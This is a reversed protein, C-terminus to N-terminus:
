PLYRSHKIVRKVGVHFRVYISPVRSELSKASVFERGSRITRRKTVSRRVANHEKIQKIEDLSASNLVKCITHECNAYFAQSM